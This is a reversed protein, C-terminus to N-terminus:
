GSVQLYGRWKARFPRARDGESREATEFLGRTGTSNYLLSRRCEQNCLGKATEELAMQESGWRELRWGGKKQHQLRWVGGVSPGEGKKEQQIQKKM